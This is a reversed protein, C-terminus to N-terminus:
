AAAAVYEKPDIGMARCVALQEANLGNPCQPDAPQRGGTQMGKLAPISVTSALYSKLAAIDKAGLDRAWAEQAALLKGESLAVEVLDDVEKTNIQRSLEAVQTQLAQMTDVSVYKAPDPTQQAKLAAIQAQAEDAQQKLGAVAALADADTADAALGLAAILQELKMSQEKPDFRAAALAAVEGLADLAPDNTLAAHRLGVVRGQRDYAFVPSIYRYEGAEIMQKARETWSVAAWLGDDRWELERFWGAAPAPQGNEKTLLTQHEFDVVYDTARARASAILAEALPADLRWSKVDTPRGDLARFEGAPLLHIAGTAAPTFALVAVATRTRMM